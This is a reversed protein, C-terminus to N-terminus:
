ASLAKFLHAARRRLGSALMGHNYHAHGLKYKKFMDSIAYIESRKASEGPPIVLCMPKHAKALFAKAKRVETKSVSM